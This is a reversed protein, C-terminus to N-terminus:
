GRVRSDSTGWLPLSPTGLKTRRHIMLDEDRCREADQQRWGKGAMKEIGDRALVEARASFTALPKQTIPSQSANSSRMKSLPMSPLAQKVETATLKKPAASNTIDGLAKRGATPPAHPKSDSSPQAVDMKVGTNTINGLAKRTSHQSPPIQKHLISAHHSQKVATSMLGKTMNEKDVQLARTGPGNNESQLFHSVLSMRHEPSNDARSQKNANAITHVIPM